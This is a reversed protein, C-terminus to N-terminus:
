LPLLAILDKLSDRCLLVEARALELYKAVQDKGGGPNYEGFSSTYALENVKNLHSNWGEVAAIWKEFDDDRVQDQAKVLLKEVQFLPSTTTRLGLFLRVRDPDQNGSNPNTTEKEWNDLLYNVDALGKNLRTLDKPDQSAYVATHTNIGIAAGSAAAVLVRRSVM